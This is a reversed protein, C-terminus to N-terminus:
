IKQWRRKTTATEIASSNYLADSVVVVSLRAAPLVYNGAGDEDEEHGSGIAVAVMLLYVSAVVPAELSQPVSAM